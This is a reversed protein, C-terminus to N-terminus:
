GPNRKRRSAKKALEIEELLRRLVPRIPARPFTIPVRKSLLRRNASDRPEWPMVIDHVPPDSTPPDSTPPDPTPPGPMPPDPPPPDPTPPGPTPPDPPPPIRWTPMDSDFQDSQEMDKTREAVYNPSNWKEYEALPVVITSVVLLFVGTIWIGLGGNGGGSWMFLGFVALYGIFLSMLCLRDFKDLKGAGLVANGLSLALGGGALSVGVIKGEDYNGMDDVALNTIESDFGQAAVLWVIMGTLIVFGLLYQVLIRGGWGKSCECAGM